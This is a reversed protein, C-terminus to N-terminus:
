EAGEERGGLGRMKGGEHLCLGDAEEGVRVRVEVGGNGSERSTM